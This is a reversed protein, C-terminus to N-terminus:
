CGLIRIVLAIVAVILFFRIVDVSCGWGVLLEGLCGLVTNATKEFEDDAAV